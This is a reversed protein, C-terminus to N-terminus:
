RVEKRSEKIEGEEHFRKYAFFILIALTIGALITMIAPSITALNIILAYIIAIISGIILSVSIVTHHAIVLGIMLFIAAMALMMILSETKALQNFVASTSFGIFFPLIVTIALGAGFRRWDISRSNPQNKRKVLYVILWVISGIVAIPILLYFLYGFYFM